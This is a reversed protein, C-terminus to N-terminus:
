ADRQGRRGGSDRPLAVGAHAAAPGSGRRHWVAASSWTMGLAGMEGEREGSGGGRPVWGEAGEGDNGKSCLRRGDVLIKEGRHTTRRTWGHGLAACEDGDGLRGGQRNELVPAGGGRRVGDSRRRRGGGEPSRGGLQEM